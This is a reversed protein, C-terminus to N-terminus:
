RSMRELRLPLNFSEAAVADSGLTCYADGVLAGDDLRGRFQMTFTVPLGSSTQGPGEAVFEVRGARALCSVIQATFHHGTMATFDAVVEGNYSEGGPRFMAAVSVERNRGRGTGPELPIRMEWRGNLSVDGGHPGQRNHDRVSGRDGRNPEYGFEPHVPKGPPMPRAERISMTIVNNQNDWRVDDAGEPLYYHTTYNIRANKGLSPRIHTAVLYGDGQHIIESHEALPFELRDRIRAGYNPLDANIIFVRERPDFRTAINKAKAANDGGVVGFLVLTAEVEGPNNDGDPLAAEPAEVQLVANGDRDLTVAVRTLNLKLADAALSFDAAGFFLICAALFVTVRGAMAVMRM